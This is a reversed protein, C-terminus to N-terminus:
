SWPDKSLSKEQKQSVAVDGVKINISLMRQIESKCRFTRYYLFNYSKDIDGLSMETTNDTPTSNLHNSVMQCMTLPIPFQLLFNCVCM